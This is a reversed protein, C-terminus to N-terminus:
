NPDDQQVGIHAQRVRSLAAAMAPREHSGVHEIRPISRVRRCTRRTGSAGTAVGILQRERVPLGADHLRRRCPIRHQGRVDVRVVCEVGGDRLHRERGRM